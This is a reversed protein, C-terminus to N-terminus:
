LTLVHSCLFSCVVIRAAGRAGGFFRVNRAQEEKKNKLIQKQTNRREIKSRVHIKAKSPNQKETKGSPSLILRRVAFYGKFNGQTCVQVQPRATRQVAQATKDVHPPPQPRSVVVTAKGHQPPREAARRGTEDEETAIARASNSSLFFRAISM